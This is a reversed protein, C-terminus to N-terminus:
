HVLFDFIQTVQKITVNTKSLHDPVSGVANRLYAESKFKQAEIEEAILSPM